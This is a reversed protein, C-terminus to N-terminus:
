GSNASSSFQLSAWGFITGREHASLCAQARTPRRDVCQRSRTGTVRSLFLEPLFFAGARVPASSLSQTYAHSVRSRGQVCCYNRSRLVLDERRAPASGPFARRRRATGQPGVRDDFRKLGLERPELM